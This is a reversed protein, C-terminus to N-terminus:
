VIGKPVIGEEIWADLVDLVAQSFGADNIHADIEVLKAPRKVANRLESNFAAMAIPDRLGGDPRDWEQVGLRPLIVTVPAKSKALKGGILRAM